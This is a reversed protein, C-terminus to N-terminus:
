SHVRTRSHRSMCFLFTTLLLGVVYEYVENTADTTCSMDAESIRARRPPYSPYPFWKHRANRSRDRSYFDLHQDVTEHAAM